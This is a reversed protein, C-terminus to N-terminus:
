ICELLFRRWFVPMMCITDHLWETLVQLDASSPEKGGDSQDDTKIFTTVALALFLVFYVTLEQILFQSKEPGLSRLYQIGM